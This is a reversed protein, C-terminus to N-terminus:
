ARRRRGFLALTGLGLLPLAGPGPIQAGAIPVLRGAGPEDGPARLRFEPWTAPPLTGPHFAPGDPDAATAVPSLWASLALHPGSQLEGGLIEATIPPDWPDGGDRPPLQHDPPKVHDQVTHPTHEVADQVTHRRLASDRIGLRSEAHAYGTMALVTALLTARRLIRGLTDKM